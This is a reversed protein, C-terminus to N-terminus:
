RAEEPTTENSKILILFIVTILLAAISGSIVLYIL